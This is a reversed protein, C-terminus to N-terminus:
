EGEDGESLSDFVDFSSSRLAQKQKLAAELHLLYDASKMGLQFQLDYVNVNSMLSRIVYNHRMTDFSFSDLKAKKAIIHYSKQILYSSVHNNEDSLFIYPVVEGYAEQATRHLILQQELIKACSNSILIKRSVKPVGETIKEMMKPMHVTRLISLKKANPDYDSEQIGLIEPLQLGSSLGFSFINPYRTAKIAERINDLQKKSYYSLDYEPTFPVSPVSLCPSIEILNHMVAYDFIRRIMHDTRYLFFTNRRNSDIISDEIRIIHEPTIEKLTINEALPYVFNKFEGKLNQRYIDGFKNYPDNFFVECLEFFTSYETLNSCYNMYNLM